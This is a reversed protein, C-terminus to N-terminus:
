VIVEILGALTAACIIYFAITIGGALLIAAIDKESM